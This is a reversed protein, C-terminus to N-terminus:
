RPKETKKESPRSAGEFDRIWRSNTDDVGQRLYDFEAALAPDSFEVRGEKMSWKGLNEALLACTREDRVLRTESMDVADMTEVYLRQADAREVICDAPFLDYLTRFLDRAKQRTSNTERYGSRAAARWVAANTSSELASYDKLLSVGVSAMRASHDALLSSASAELTKMKEVMGPHYLSYRNMSAQRSDAAPRGTSAIRSAAFVAERRSSLQSRSAFFVATAALVAALVMLVVVVRGRFGHVEGNSKSGDAAIVKIPRIGRSRLSSFVEERSGASMEDQHRVGDSTKYTFTYKM